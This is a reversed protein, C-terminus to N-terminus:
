QVGTQSIQNPMEDRRYYISRLDFTLSQNIFSSVGSIDFTMQLKVYEFICSELLLARVKATYDKDVLFKDTRLATHVLTTHMRSLSRAATLALTLKNELSLNEEEQLLKKLTGKEM